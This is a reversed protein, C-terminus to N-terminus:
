VGLPEQILKFLLKQTGTKDKKYAEHISKHTGKSVPILNSPDLKRSPNDKIEEIHHVTDAYVLRKNVKFQYVDLGHYNSKILKSLKRWEKSEYFSQSEKDRKYRDYDRNMRSTCVDCYKETREIIKRCRPCMKKIAM